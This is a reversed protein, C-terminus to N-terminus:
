INRAVPAEPTLTLMVECWFWARSSAVGLRQREEEMGARCLDQCVTKLMGRSMVEVKGGSIWAKEPATPLAVAFVM